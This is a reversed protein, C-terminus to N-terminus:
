GNTIKKTKPTGGNETWSLIFGTPRDGSGYLIHTDANVRKGAALAKNWENEIVRYESLNVKIGHQSVLNDLEPSVGFRDAFIHGAHDTSLKGPTRPDNRARPSSTKQLPRAYARSIRGKLDTVYVYKVDDARKGTEYIVNKKLGGSHEFPEDVWKLKPNLGAMIGRAVKSPGKAM